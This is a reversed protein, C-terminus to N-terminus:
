RVGFCEQMRARHREYGRQYVKQHVCKRREGQKEPTPSSLGIYAEEKSSGWRSAGTKEEDRVCEPSPSSPARDQWEQHAVCREGVENSYVSEGRSGSEVRSWFCKEHGFHRLRKYIRVCATVPVFPTVVSLGDLVRTSAFITSVERLAARVGERWPVDRSLVVGTVCVHM